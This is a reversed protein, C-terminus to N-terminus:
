KKVVIHVSLCSRNGGKLIQRDEHESCDLKYFLLLLHETNFRIARYINEHHLGKRNTGLAEIYCFYRLISCLAYRLRAPFLYARFVARHTIQFAPIQCPFAFSPALTAATMPHARKRTGARMALRLRSLVHCSGL